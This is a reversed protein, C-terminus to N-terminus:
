VTVILLLMLLLHSFNKIVSRAECNWPTQPQQGFHMRWVRTPHEIGEATPLVKDTKEVVQEIQRVVSNDQTFATPGLPSPYKLAKVTGWLAMGQAEVVKLSM